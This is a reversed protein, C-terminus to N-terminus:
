HIIFLKDTNMSDLRSLLVFDRNLGSQIHQVAKDKSLFLTSVYYFLLFFFIVHLIMGDGVLNYLFSNTNLNNRNLSGSILPEAYIEGTDMM